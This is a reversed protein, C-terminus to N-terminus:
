KKDHTIYYLVLFITFYWFSFNILIVDDTYSCGGFPISQFRSCNDFSIGLLFYMLIALIVSVLGNILMIFSKVKVCHIMLILLFFPVIFYNIM